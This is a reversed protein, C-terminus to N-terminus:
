SKRRRRPAKPKPAPAKPATQPKDSKAENGTGKVTGGEKSADRQASAAGLSDLAKRGMDVITTAATGYGAVQETSLPPEVVLKGTAIDGLRDIVEQGADVAAQLETDAGRARTLLGDALAVFAEQPMKQPESEAMM